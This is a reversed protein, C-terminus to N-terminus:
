IAGVDFRRYPAVLLSVDPDTRGILTVQGFDNSGALGFPSDKRKMLRVTQLITAEVIPEPVSPWGWVGTVKVANRGYPFSQNGLPTRYLATYPWVTLAGYQPSLDYDTPLWITTYSRDGAGDTALQSISVLDPVPLWGPDCATLLRSESTSQFFSRNTMGDIQRSAAAILSVLATDSASTRDDLREKVQEVTAYSTGQLVSLPLVDIPSVTIVKATGKIAIARLRYNGPDTPMAMDGYWDDGSATGTVPAVIETGDPAYLGFTVTAGSLVPGSDADLLDNLWFRATEGPFYSPRLTM